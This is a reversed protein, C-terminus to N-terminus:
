KRDEHNKAVIENSRLNPGFIMSMISKSNSDPYITSHNLGIKNLKIPAIHLNGYTTLFRSSRILKDTEMVAHKKARLTHISQLIVSGRKEMDLKPAFYLKSSRALCVISSRNRTDVCYPKVGNQQYIAHFSSRPFLFTIPSALSTQSIRPRSVVTGSLLTENMQTLVFQLTQIFSLKVLGTKASHEFHGLSIKLWPLKTTIVDRRVISTISPLRALSSILEVCDANEDILISSFHNSKLKLELSKFDRAVSSKFSELSGLSPQSPSRQVHEESQCARKKQVWQHIQLLRLRLQVRGIFLYAYLRAFLGKKFRKEPKLDTSQACQLLISSNTRDHSALLSGRSKFTDKLNGELMLSKFQRGPSMSSSHISDSFNTSRLARSNTQTKNAFKTYALSSHPHIGQLTHTASKCSKPTQKSSQTLPITTQAKQIETIACTKRKPLRYVRSIVRLCVQLLSVKKKREVTRELTCNRQGKGYKLSITSPELSRFHNYGKSRSKELRKIHMKAKIKAM